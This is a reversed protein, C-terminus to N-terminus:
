EAHFNALIEVRSTASAPITLVTVTDTVPQGEADKVVEGNITWNDFVWGEAGKATFIQETGATVTYAAPAVTCATEAAGTVDYAKATFTVYQDPLVCKINRQTCQMITPDGSEQEYYVNCAVEMSPAVITVRSGQADTGVYQNLTEATVTAM